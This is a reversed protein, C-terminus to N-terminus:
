NSTNLEALVDAPIEVVADRDGAAMTWTSIKVVAPGACEIRPEGYRGDNPLLLHATGEAFSGSPLTDYLPLTSDAEWGGEDPSGNCTIAMAPVSLEDTTRNEIRASVAVWPGGSDGGVSMDQVVVTLGPALEFTEGLDATQANALIQEAKVEDAPRLEIDEDLLETADGDSGFDQGFDCEATRWRGGQYVYTDADAGSEIPILVAGNRELSTAARASTGEVLDFIEVDGVELSSLEDLELGMFGALLALLFTTTGAIDKVGIEAQCEDTLLDRVKTWDGELMAVTSARVVEEVGASGPDAGVQTENSGCATTSIALVAIALRKWGMDDVRRRKKTWEDGSKLLTLTYYVFPNLYGSFARKTITMPATAKTAM